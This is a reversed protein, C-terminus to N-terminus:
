PAFPYGKALVRELEADHGYIDPYFAVEGTRRIVASTYYIVVPLPAALNVREPEPGDMARAVQEASWSAPNRLVWTALLAPDELRICGHSFDRRARSFLETAPTGHMYVNFDNPFIFKALGLSNRPGPRQRIGLQGRAVRDLSAATAPVAPGTDGSGSYLEMNNRELYQRDRRIGPLTEERLIGRPIVWYPRFVIYKMDREFLPTERGLEAKGVVVNMALTPIGDTGLTDFAYLQFGPVNVIVFPGALAPLWRIRELALELQRARRAPSVNLAALTGPGLASDAALGHRAQFRAVAAAVTTDYLTSDEVLPTDPPLDGFAVLRQRLAPAQTFRAGPRVVGSGAVTPLGSAEALARYRAYAEKLSRYHVFRPEAELVMEAIRGSTLGERLVRALDKKKPEINIGIALKKPNVRGLHVDSVHRLVAVSLALDFWALDPASAPTGTTLEGFRRDLTGADYDEPHLGREDASRLVDIAERAMANPRGNVTWVPRWEVASYLATLEDRYSPFRPWRLGSLVGTRSVERLMPAVSDAQAPTQARAHDSLSSSSLAIILALCLRTGFMSAIESPTGRM